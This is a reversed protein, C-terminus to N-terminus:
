QYSQAVALHVENAVHSIRRLLRARDENRPRTEESLQMASDVLTDRFFLAAELAATLPMGARLALTGYEGGIRRAERLLEEDDHPNNIYHLVVGMLQQGIRRWAERDAEPIRALWARHSHPATAIESRTQASTRTALESGFARSTLSTRRALTEIDHRAFRRHGGPTIYVPVSGEDAWRRLTTSHVGLLKSAASLSLFTVEDREPM